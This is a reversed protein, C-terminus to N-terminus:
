VGAFIEWNVIATPQVNNHATGSGASGSAFAPIDVTHTHTASKGLTNGGVAHTHNASNASSGLNLGTSNSLRNAGGTAVTNNNQGVTVTHTHNASQTTSTDSWPHTHDGTETSTTVAAGMDVTHTHSPLEGTVLAHSEDGGYAGLVDGDVGGSLGTLRNASSGGMDDKGALTRGRFDPLGFTTSGDGAGWTEGIRSFLAAYTARSVNQGYCLLWGADATPAATAIIMGVKFIAPQIAAVDAQLAAVDAQLALVAAGIAAIDAQILAIEAEIADIDAEATTIRVNLAEVRVM